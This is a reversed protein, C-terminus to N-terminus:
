QMPNSRLMRTALQYQVPVPVLMMPGSPSMIIPNHYPTNQNFRPSRFRPQHHNQYRYKGKAYIEERGADDANRVARRFRNTINYCYKYMSIIYPALKEKMWQTSFCKQTKHDKWCIEEASLTEINPMDSQFPKNANFLKQVFFNIRNNIADVLITMKNQGDKLKSRSEYTDCRLHIPIEKHFFYEWIRNNIDASEHDINKSEIDIGESNPDFIHKNQTYFESTDRILDETLDLAENCLIREFAVTPTMESITLALTAILLGAPTRQVVFGRLNQDTLKPLELEAIGRIRTDRLQIAYVDEKDDENFQDSHDSEHSEQDDDQDDDQDDEQEDEKINPVNTSLLPNETEQVLTNVVPDNSSEPLHPNVLVEVANETSLKTQADDVQAM